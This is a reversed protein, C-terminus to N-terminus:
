KSNIKDFAQPIKKSHFELALLLEEKKRTLNLTGNTLLVIGNQGRCNCYRGFLMKTKQLETNSLTLSFDGQQIEFLVEERLGGDVAAKNLDEEYSFQVVDTSPNDKLQYTFYGNVTVTDLSKNRLLILTEKGNQFATTKLITKDQPVIKSHGCSSLLVFFSLSIIVIIPKM